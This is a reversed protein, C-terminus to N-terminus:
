MVITVSALFSRGDQPMTLQTFESSLPLAYRWDAVNYVGVAYHLGWRPERGSLVVDWIVAADSSGQPDDGALENRDHRPGELTLRTAATLQAFLPAAAKVSALHIPVNAVERVEPNTEVSLLDSFSDSALYHARTLGYSAQLMWGRRWERRLALEAGLALLPSPSNTYQLPDEEDGSGRTVLLDKVYNAYVSALASVTASIRHSHELELSYISEPRPENGASKGAIQTIGGDNYYLEYLSPARFAKGALLKTNGGAYPRVIVAARTSRPASPRTRM